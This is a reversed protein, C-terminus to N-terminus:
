LQAKYMLKVIGDIKNTLTGERHRFAVILLRLIEEFVKRATDTDLAESFTGWIDQFNAASACNSATDKLMRSFQDDMTIFENLKNRIAMFMRRYAGESISAPPTTSQSSMVRMITALAEEVVVSAKETDKATIGAKEIRYAAKLLFSKLAHYDVVLKQSAM